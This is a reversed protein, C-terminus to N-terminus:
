LASVSTAALADSRDAEAALVDAMRDIMEASIANADKM